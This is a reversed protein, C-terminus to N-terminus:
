HPTKRMLKPPERAGDDAGLRPREIVPEPEAAATTETATAPPGNDAPVEPAKDNDPPDQACDLTTDMIDKDSERHVLRHGDTDVDM